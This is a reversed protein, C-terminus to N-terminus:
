AAGAERGGDTEAERRLEAVSLGEYSLFFFGLGAGLLAEILQLAIAFTVAADTSIGYSLTLVAATAGQFVVVNGPVIPFLQVLTSALFVLGAAGVGLEIGYGELAWQIGAIQAIWSFASCLLAWALLRPRHLLQQGQRMAVSLASLSIGLLNWWREVYDDRPRRRRQLREYAELAGAAVAIIAVVGILVGLLRALWHPVSVFAAIGLLVTVLTVGALLQETVLTGVLTPVPVRRGRAQLKRNLVSIRAVEGLRAFLVTNLLFGIFIAPVVDALRAVPGRQPPEVPVADVAAKWTLAKGIVSALNAALAAMVLPLDAKTFVDVLLRVDFKRSLAFVVGAVILLGLTGRLVMRRQRRLVPALESVTVLELGREGAAAIIGPLAAVTQARDDGRGSGDADHLLLIAGPRLVRVAREVIREAGPKATDFISGTWGVVRYGLRRAVPVVFPGRFGHPARFLHDPPRGAASSVAEEAARLQRAIHTPTAFTLLSHDDGHSALEHGDAVIRAALEPHRRVHRGLVFFTARVGHESLIDLVAPTWEASPGDDFTLAAVPARAIGGGVVSGFIRSNQNFAGWAGLLVALAGLALVADGAVGGLASGVLGTVALVAAALGVFWALVHRKGM